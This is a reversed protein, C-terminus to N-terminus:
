KPRNKLWSLKHRLRSPIIMTGILNAILIIKRFGWQENLIVDRLKFWKTQRIAQLETESYLLKNQVDQLKEKTQKQKENIIQLDNQLSHNVHEITKITESFSHNTSELNKITESFSHNTSELNKITESFSHNTSELNKITESFSHNTSELNKKKELLSKIELELTKNKELLSEITHELAQNKELITYNQFQLKTTRNERELFFQIYDYSVDFECSGSITEPISHSCIAIFAVPRNHIISAPLHNFDASTPIADYSILVSPRIWQGLIVVHEFFLSLLEKFEIETMERVHYPNEGYLATVDPNPTSIILKGQRNLLRSINRIVAIQTEHDVHEIMEFCTVLDFSQDPLGKGIDSRCEFYLHPNLHTQQAWKIATSDIDLGLVSRATNSLIASGYGTGCGFDLVKGNAAFQKAFSYRPLHEYEALKSWTGPVYREQMFQIFDSGHAECRLGAYGYLRENVSSHEDEYPRVKSLHLPSTGQIHIQKFRLRQLFLKLSHGSFYLLHSPPHRYAWNDHNLLADTSRANPTTIVLLTEPGIAGKSFLEFMFMYPDSLHEIVDLMLVLEFQHPIMDGVNEVLFIKGSHREIAVRRAHDSTEIGFCKWGRDAALRLHSGYGCGVDLVYRVKSDEPFKDLIESVIALSAETQADYNQYGGKEGGEFWEKRDYLAKLENQDPMPWVFDMASEPCRWITFSEERCLMKVKDSLTIPCTPCSKQTMINHLAM